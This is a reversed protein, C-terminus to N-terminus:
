GGGDRLTGAFRAARIDSTPSSRNHCRWLKARNVSFGRDRLPHPTLMYGFFLTVSLTNIADHVPHKLEIFFSLLKVEAGDAGSGSGLVLRPRQYFRNFRIKRISM